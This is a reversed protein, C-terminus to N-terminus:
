TSKGASAVRKAAALLPSEPAASKPPPVVAIAAADSRAALQNLVSARLADPRIGKQVAEAVDITVGLRAAQAGVTALEAAEARVLAVALAAESPVPVSPPVLAPPPEVPAPAAQSEIEDPAPEETTTSANPKMMSEKSLHSKVSRGPGAALITGRGNVAAAFAAFASAPDSVEDALGAAVAEAGRYCEAESALAANATLSRGRGAAVTQAFLTRIADIEGQIRARVPDPLPAYPNGDVKHAGSHILTVTVGADSLQGSLDAHMVVVGISGVAGTRPLIIRDAQSALAYGASFAHEAVFAWVQKKARAARIADALDFVGAVEGGFSDIELAIGRVAPDSAAAVIQAAIGEYSTQGSSQGIWAGRHVLVGTIEIVAIGDQLAFPTHGDRQYQEGLGNTLIGARAPVMAHAVDEPAVEIGALRLQRGTIRPGLGSLFAMAKSPEVLLPTNFARQAIQAHFM